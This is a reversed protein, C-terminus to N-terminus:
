RQPLYWRYVLHRSIPADVSSIGLDGSEGLIPSTRSYRFIRCQNGPVLPEASQPQAPEPSVIAAIPNAVLWLKTSSLVAKGGACFRVTASVVQEHNPSLTQGLQLVTMRTVHAYLPSGPPITVSAGVRQTEFVPPALEAELRSATGHATYVSMAIGVEILGIIVFASGTIWPTARNPRREIGVPKLFGLRMGRYNLLVLCGYTVVAAGIVMGLIPVLWAFVIGLMLVVFELLQERGGREPLAPNTGPQIGVTAEVGEM